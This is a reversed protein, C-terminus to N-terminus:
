RGLKVHTTAASETPLRLPPIHSPATDLPASNVAARNTPPASSRTFRAPVVTIYSDAQGLTSWSPFHRDHTFGCPLGVHSLHKKWNRQEYTARAERQM